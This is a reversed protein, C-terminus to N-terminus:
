EETAELHSQLGSHQLHILGKTGTSCLSSQTRETHRVHQLVRDGSIKYMELALNRQSLIRHHFIPGPFYTNSFFGCLHLWSIEYQMRLM